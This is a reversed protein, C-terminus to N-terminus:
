ISAPILLYGVLIRVPKSPYPADAARAVGLVMGISLLALGITTSFSSRM